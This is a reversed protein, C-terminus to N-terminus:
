NKQFQNEYGYMLFESQASTRGQMESKMQMKLQALSEAITM